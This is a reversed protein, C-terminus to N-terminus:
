DNQRMTELMRYMRYLVPIFPYDMAPVSRKIVGGFGRKFRYVGWLGDSRSQFSDELEQEDQDPIGWLDYYVCGKEKAWKMAEFQLLYTPMRNREKENSAGYFYWARNDEYFAMLGALPIEQYYAILLAVKGAANFLDYAKQYYSQSHVGFGDRDGTELMLNYFLQVDSSQSIEIDKKRALRINYRTKQKMQKLWTEADGSLDIEITRRPQIAKGPQWGVNFQPFDHESDWRDPEVRLFISKRQRCFAFIENWFDKDPQGVPGKPIYAISFGLPLKRFLIQAGCCNKYIIRAPDWGFDSKLEGWTATQLIHSNPYQSLWHDWEQTNAIKIM